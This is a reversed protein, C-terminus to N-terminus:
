FSAADGRIQQTPDFNDPDREQADAEDIERLGIRFDQKLQDRSFESRKLSCIGNKEVQARALRDKANIM